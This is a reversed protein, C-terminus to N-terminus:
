LTGAYGRFARYQQFYGMKEHQMDYKVFSWKPSLQYLSVKEVVKVKKGAEPTERQKVKKPMQWAGM